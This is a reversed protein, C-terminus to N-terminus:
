CAKGGAEDVAVSVSVLGVDGDLLLGPCQSIHPLQM